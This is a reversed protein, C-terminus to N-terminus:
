QEVGNEIVLPGIRLAMHVNGFSYKNTISRLFFPIDGDEDERLASSRGFEAVTTDSNVLSYQREVTRGNGNRYAKRIAKEMERQKEEEKLEGIRKLESLKTHKESKSLMGQYKAEAVLEGLDFLGCQLLGPSASIRHKDAEGVPFLARSRGDADIRAVTTCCCIAGSIEPTIAESLICHKYVKFLDKSGHYCKAYCAECVIKEHNYIQSGRFMVGRIIQRCTSCRLPVFIPMHTQDLQLLKLQPASPRKWFSVGDEPPRYEILKDIDLFGAAQLLMRARRKLPPLRKRGDLAIRIDEKIAASGSEAWMSWARDHLAEEYTPPKDSGSGEFKKNYLKAFQRTRYNVQDLFTDFGHISDDEEDPVIIAADEDKQWKRLTLLIHAMERRVGQWFMGSLERYLHEEAPGILTRPYRPATTVNSSERVPKRSSPPCLWSAESIAQLFPAM